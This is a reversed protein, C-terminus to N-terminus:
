MLLLYVFKLLQHLKSHYLYLLIYMFLFLLALCTILIPLAAFSPVPSGKLVAKSLTFSLKVSSYESSAPSTPLMTAPSAIDTLLAVPSTVTFTDPSVVESIAASVSTVSLSPILELSLSV